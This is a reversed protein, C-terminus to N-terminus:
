SRVTSLSPPTEALVTLFSAVGLFRGDPDRLSVVNLHYTRLAGDPLRESLEGSESSRGALARELPSEGRAIPQGLRDLLPHAQRLEELNTAEAPVPLDLLEAAAATYFPIEGEASVVVMARDGHAALAALVIPEVSRPGPTGQKGPDFSAAVAAVTEDFGQKVLLPLGLAQARAQKVPDAHATHLIVRTSPRHSGILEAAVFGDMLPMEADLLAIDARESLV